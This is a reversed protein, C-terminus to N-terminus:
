ELYVPFDRRGFYRCGLAYGAETPQSFALDHIALESGFVFNLRAHELLRRAIGQKRCSPHVWIRSIGCSAPVSNSSCTNQDQLLFASTISRCIVVGRIKNRSIYVFCQSDKVTEVVAGLEENVHQALELLKSQHPYKHVGDSMTCDLIKHSEAHLILENKLLKIGCDPCKVKINFFTQVYGEKKKPKTKKQVQLIALPM